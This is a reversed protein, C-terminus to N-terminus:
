QMDLLRLQLRGARMGEGFTTRHHGTGERGGEQGPGAQLSLPQGVQGLGHLAAEWGFELLHCFLQTLHAPGLKRPAKQGCCASAPPHVWCM